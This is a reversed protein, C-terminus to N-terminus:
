KTGCTRPTISGMDRYSITLEGHIMSHGVNLSPTALNAIKAHGRRAPANQGVLLFPAKLHDFTVGSRCYELPALPVIGPRLDALGGTALFTAGDRDLENGINSGSVDLPKQFQADQV